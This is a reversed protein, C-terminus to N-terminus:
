VLPVLEVTSEDFERMGHRTPHVEIRFLVRLAQRKEALTWGEWRAAAEPGFGDLVTQPVVSTPSHATLEALEALLRSEVRAFAAPSMRGAVAEEEFAALRAQLDEVASSVGPVGPASPGRRVRAEVAPDEMLLVARAVVFADLRAVGRSVHGKPATPNVGGCSYTMRGRNRLPRLWAGCVGCRGVGSLLYRATRSRSTPRSPARLLAQVRAWDDPDVIPAWAAEKVITGNHTRMGMLSPKSLMNRIISPSWGNHAHDRGALMARHARPPLIEDHNLAKAVSYLTDGALVARVIRQVVMSTEPDPIQKELRGGTTYTRTYGYPAFSRPLGENVSRRHSRLTRERALEAEREAVLADLGTSFRDDGAGMDYVRGRYAFRMRHHECLERFAVFDALNRQARSSEWAVFVDVRGWRGSALGAGIERYGERERVAWRSASRDNDTITAVVVWGQRACFDHNERDQSEVSVRQGAKDASARNYILARLRPAPNDVESM